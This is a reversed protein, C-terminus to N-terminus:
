WTTKVNYETIRVDRTIIPMDELISQAIIIRDFPDKHIVPLNHIYLCHRMTIPMPQIANLSMQRPLYDDIVEEALRLRGLQCKIVIEWGSAASLFLENNSDSIIDRVKGSLTSKDTIWWLFAHTDLLYKM